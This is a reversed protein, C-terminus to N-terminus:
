PHLVRFTPQPQAFGKLTLEGVSELPIEDRLAASARASLLIEGGAAADSLRAPAREHLTHDPRRRAAAIPVKM